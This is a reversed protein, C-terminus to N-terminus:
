SKTRGVPRFASDDAVLGAAAVLLPVAVAASPAAAAAAAAATVIAAAAAAAATVIAAAAAAAAAPVQVPSATADCQRAPTSAQPLLASDWATLRRRHAHLLSTCRVLLHTRLPVLM